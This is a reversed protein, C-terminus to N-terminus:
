EDELDPLKIEQVKMEKIKPKEEKRKRKARVPPIYRYNVQNIMDEARTNGMAASKKIYQWAQTNLKLARYTLGLSLYYDDIFQSSDLISLNKARKLYELSKNNKKNARAIESVELYRKLLYSQIKRTTVQHKKGYKTKEKDTLYTTAAELFKLEEDVTDREKSLKILNNESLNIKKAKSLSQIMLDTQDKLSLLKMFQWFEAQYKAPFNKVTEIEKTATEFQNTKAMAYVILFQLSENKRNGQAKTLIELAKATKFERLYNGAQKIALSQTFLQFVFLTILILVIIGLGIKIRRKGLLDKVM